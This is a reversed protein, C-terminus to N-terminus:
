VLLVSRSLILVSCYYITIYYSFEMNRRKNRYINTFNIGDNVFGILKGNVYVYWLNNSNKCYSNYHGGSVCGIHNGVAYLEYLNQEKLRSYNSMDLDFPFPMVM